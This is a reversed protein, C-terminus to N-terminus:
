EFSYRPDGRVMAKLAQLPTQYSCERGDGLASLLDENLQTEMDLPSLEAEGPMWTADIILRNMSGTVSRNLAKAFHVEASAPAIRQRFVSKYGYRQFLESLHSLASKIFENADSIGRGFMITSFFSKTNCLHICQRRDLLFMQASWDAFPNEDMPLEALAGAKIKRGLKQSLRFIM